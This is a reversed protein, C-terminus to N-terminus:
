VDQVLMPLLPFWHQEHGFAGGASPPTGFFIPPTVVGGGVCKGAKSGPCMNVSGGAGFGQPMASTTSIMSAELEILSLSQSLCISKAFFSTEEIPTELPYM